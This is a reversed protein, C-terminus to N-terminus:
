KELEEMEKEYHEERDEIEHDEFDIEGYNKYKLKEV